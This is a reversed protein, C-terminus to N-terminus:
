PGESAAPHDRHVAVRGGCPSWSVKPRGLRHYHRQQLYQSHREPGVCDHGSWAGGRQPRSEWERRGEENRVLTWCRSEDAEFAFLAVFSLAILTGCILGAALYPPVLVLRRGPSRLSWAAAMFIAGTAPLLILTILSFTSFSAILSLTGLAILLGGRASPHEARAAALTLLYPSTYVLTFVTDAFLREATVPGDDGFFRFSGLVAAALLGM